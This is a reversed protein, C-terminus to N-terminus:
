QPHVIKPGKRKDDWIFQGDRTIVLIGKNGFRPSDVGFLGQMKEGSIIYVNTCVFPPETTKSIYKEIQPVQPSGDQVWAMRLTKLVYSKSTIETPLISFYM